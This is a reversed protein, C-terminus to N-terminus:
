SRVKLADSANFGVGCHPCMLETLQWRTLWRIHQAYLARRGIDSLSLVRLASTVFIKELTTVQNLVIVSEELIERHAPLHVFHFIKNKRADAHSPGPIESMPVIPSVIWNEIRPKDIECDHSLLIAREFRLSAIGTARGASGHGEVELPALLGEERAELLRAPYKLHAHPLVELIDGQSLTSSPPEYFDESL